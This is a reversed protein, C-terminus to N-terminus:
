GLGWGEGPPQTAPNCAWLKVGLDCNNKIGLVIFNEPSLFQLFFLVWCQWRNLVPHEPLGITDAVWFATFSFNNSGHIELCGLYYISFKHSFWVAASGKPGKDTYFPDRTVPPCPTLSHIVSLHSVLSQTSDSHLKDLRADFKKYLLIVLFWALYMWRTVTVCYLLFTYM